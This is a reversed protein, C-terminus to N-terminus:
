PSAEAAGLLIRIQTSVLLDNVTRATEIVCEMEEPCLRHARRSLGSFRRRLRHVIKDAKDPRGYEYWSRAKGLRINYRTLKKTFRPGKKGGLCTSISCTEAFGGIECDAGSFGELADTFESNCCATTCSDSGGDGDDCVALTCDTDCGAAELGESDCAEDYDTDM